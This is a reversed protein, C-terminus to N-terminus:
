SYPLCKIKYPRICLFHKKATFSRAGGDETGTLKCQFTTAATSSVVTATFWASAALAHISSFILVSCVIVVSLVAKKANM